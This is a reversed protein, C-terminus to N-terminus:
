TTTAVVVVKQQETTLIHLRLFRANLSHSLPLPGGNPRAHWSSRASFCLLTSGWPPNSVTWSPALLTLLTAQHPPSTTPAALAVAVTAIAPAVVACSPCM